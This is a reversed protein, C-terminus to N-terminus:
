IEASRAEAFGSELHNTTSYHICVAHVSGAVIGRSSNRLEQSREWENEGTNEEKFESVLVDVPGELLNAEMKALKSNLGHRKELEEENRPLHTM